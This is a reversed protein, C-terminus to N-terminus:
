EGIAVIPTLLIRREAVSAGSADRVSLREGTAANYMGIEIRYPGLPVNAAIPIEYRDMLVEGDM